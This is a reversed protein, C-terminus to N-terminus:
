SKSVNLESLKDQLEEEGSKKSPSATDATASSDEKETKKKTEQKLLFEKMKAFEGYFLKANEENGFKIALTEQKPEEDAYDAQTKWVWAKKSDCNPKMDMWPTIHHNACLGM